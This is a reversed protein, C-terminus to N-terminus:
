LSPPRQGRTMLQSIHAKFSGASMTEELPLWDSLILDTANNKRQIHFLKRIQRRAEVRPWQHDAKFALIPTIKFSLLWIDSRQEFGQKLDRSHCMSYFHLRWWPKHDRPSAGNAERGEDRVTIWRVWELAAVGGLHRVSGRCQSNGTGLFNGM